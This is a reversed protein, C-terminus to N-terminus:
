KTRVNATRASHQTSLCLPTSITAYLRQFEDRARCLSSLALVDLDNVCECNANRKLKLEGCGRNRDSQRNTVRRNRFPLCGGNTRLQRPNKTSSFCMKTLPFSSFSYTSNTRNNKISSNTNWINTKLVYHLSLFRHSNCVTGKPHGELRCLPAVGAPELAM